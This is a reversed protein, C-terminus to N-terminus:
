DTKGHEKRGKKVLPRGEDGWIMLRACTLCLPQESPWGGVGHYNTGEHYYYGTKSM